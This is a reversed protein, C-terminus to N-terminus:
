FREARVRYFPLSSEICTENLM